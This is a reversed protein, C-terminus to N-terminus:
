ALATKRPPQQSATPWQLSNEQGVRRKRKRPSPENVGCNHIRFMSFRGKHLSFKFNWDFNNNPLSQTKVIWILKIKNHLPFCKKCIYKCSLSVLPCYFFLILKIKTLPLKSRSLYLINELHGQILGPKKPLINLLGLVTHSIRLTYMYFCDFLFINLHQNNLSNILM